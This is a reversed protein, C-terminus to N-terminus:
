ILGENRLETELIEIIQSLLDIIQDIDDKTVNLPPAILIPDGYIGKNSRRGYFLIGLEQGIQKFRDIPNVHLPLQKRPNKCAVLELALLLGRGRVDGIITSKNQLEELKDRLYNGMVNTNDLLKNEIIEDLVAIAVACSLPSANYTHAYNFGTLESLKDVLNAPALMAGLPIYGAGLGKALVTIDPRAHPWLHSTLFKGTRGSGSMVEDYILFVGYQDCIRRIENFYIEPPAIAGSSSGGVPEIIFALVTDKGLELIKEELKKACSLAYTEEDPPSSALYTMMAPIKHAMTIMDGFIDEFAPDGSVALTGITMGHYSPQCSILKHRRKEGTAYRYQRCFKLAMDVAESGGSVFLAREFGAGALETLKKALDINPKNRASSPFSFALEQAQKHMADIVHPNSHGINCTVPGSSADIYQRGMDDWLYIGKGKVITLRQQDKLPSYFVDQAGGSNKGSNDM